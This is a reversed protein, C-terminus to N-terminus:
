EVAIRVQNEGEQIELLPGQSFNNGLDALLDKIDIKYDDLYEQAKGPIFRTAARALGLPIRVNVKSDGGEVVLIVLSRRASQPPGDSRRQPLGDIWSPAPTEPAEEPKAADLLEAAEEASVIGEAVMTLIRRQEDGNM